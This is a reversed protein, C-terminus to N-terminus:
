MRDFLGAWEKKQKQDYADYRKKLKALELKIGADGPALDNAQNLDAEAKSLENLQLYAMGRRYLAKANHPSKKLVQNTNAVVRDWRQMKVQCAAMNNYCAVVTEDIEKKQADTLKEAKGAGPMMATFQSSDLGSLYNISEHYLRMAKQLKAADSGATKFQANGEEKLERGREIKESLSLNFPQKTAAM